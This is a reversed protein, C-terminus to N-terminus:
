KRTAGVIWAVILSLVTGGVLLYTLNIITDTLKLDAATINQTEILGTPMDGPALKYAVFIIVGIIVVGALLKILSKPNNIGGIIVVGIVVTVLTIILILGAFMLTTDIPKEMAVLDVEAKKINAIYETQGKVGDEAMKVVNYQAILPEIPKISRNLKAIQSELVRIQNKKLKAKNKELSDTLVKVPEQAKTVADKAAAMPDAKYDIGEVSIANTTVLSDILKVLNEKEIKYSEESTALLDEAQAYAVEMSPADGQFTKLDKIALAWQDQNPSKVLGFVLVAVGLIFLIALLWKFIRNYKM